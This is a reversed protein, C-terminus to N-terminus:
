HIRLKLARRWYRWTGGTVTTSHCITRKVSPRSGIVSTGPPSMAPTRCCLRWTRKTSAKGKTDTIDREESVIRSRVEAGAPGRKAAAQAKGGSRGVAQAIMADTQRALSLDDEYGLILSHPKVREVYKRLRELQDTDLEQPYPRGCLLIGVEAGAAHAEDIEEATGSEAEGTDTGLRHWFLALVIDVSEVLQENLTTQPREGHRAASNLRWYLPVITAVFSPGYTANWRAVTDMVISRDHDSVDGPASILMRYTMASYAMSM